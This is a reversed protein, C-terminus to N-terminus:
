EKFKGDANDGVAKVRSKQKKLQWTLNLLTSIYYNHIIVDEFDM